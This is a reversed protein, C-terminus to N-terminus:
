FRQFIKNITISIHNLGRVRLIKSMLEHNELLLITIKSDLNVFLYTALTLENLQIKFIKKILLYTWTEIFFFFSFFYKFISVFILPITITDSSSSEIYFVIKNTARSISLIQIFNVMQYKNSRPYFYSIHSQMISAFPSRCHVWSWSRIHLRM